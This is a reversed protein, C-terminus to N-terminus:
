KAAIGPEIRDAGAKEPFISFPIRVMVRGQGAKQGGGGKDAKGGHRGPGIGHQGVVVADDVAAKADAEVAHVGFKTARVRDAQLFVVQPDMSSVEDM